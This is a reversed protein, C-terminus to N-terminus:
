WWGRDLCPSVPMIQHSQREGFLCPLTGGQAPVKSGVLHRCKHPHQQKQWRLAHISLCPMSPLASACLREVTDGRM